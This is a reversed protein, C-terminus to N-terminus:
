ATVNFSEVKFRIKLARQIKALTIFKLPKDGRFVQTLYGPSTHIREALIKKNLGKKSLTKEIESLYGAMLMYADHSIGETENKEEFLEQFKDRIEEHPKM